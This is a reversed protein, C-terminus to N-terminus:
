PPLVHDLFQVVSGVWQFACVEMCIQVGNSRIQVALIEWASCVFTGFDTDVIEEGFAGVRM